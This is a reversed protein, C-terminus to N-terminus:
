GGCAAGTRVIILLNLHDGVVVIHFGTRRTFLWQWIRKRTYSVADSDSDPILYILKNCFAPKKLRNLLFIKMSFPGALHTSPVTTVKSEAEGSLCCVAELTQVSRQYQDYITHPSITGYSHLEETYQAM